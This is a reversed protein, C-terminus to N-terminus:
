CPVGDDEDKEHTSFPHCCVDKVRRCWDATFSFAGPHHNRYNPPLIISGLIVAVALETSILLANFMVAVGGDIDDQIAFKFMGRLGYGGPVLM